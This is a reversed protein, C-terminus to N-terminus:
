EREIAKDIRKGIGKFFGRVGGSEEKEPPKSAAAEPAPAAEKAAALCPNDKEGINGLLAVSGFALGGTAIGAAMRGLSKLTGATDPLVSPSRLPGVVRVPVGLSLGVKKPRPVIVMDIAEKSLDVTGNGKITSRTTDVLLAESRGTGKVFRMRAVACNLYTVEDARYASELLTTLFEGAVLDLYRNGVSSKGVVVEAAGDLSAMLERMSRGEASLAIAADAEGSVKGITVVEGVLAELGLERATLRATVTGSRRSGDVVIRGDVSGGGEVAAKLGEATLRGGKLSVVGAIDKLEVPGGLLRKGSLDVKAEVARLGSFPLPDESFLPQGPPPADDEEGGVLGLDRLDITKWSVTGEFSPPVAAAALTLKGQADSNGARLRFEVPYPRRADFLRSLPGLEAAVDIRRGNLAGRLELYLPSKSGDSRAVVRDLGIQTEERTRGDRYTIRADEILVESFRPVTIGGKAEAETEAPTGAEAPAGGKAFVWNGRDREDTELLIDPAVLVLRRVELGGVLLPLFALEIEARGVKVMEPRSGWTANGLSVEEVVVAPRPVLDLDIEGAIAVDRGTFAEVRRGIADRYPNLDLFQLAVVVAVVPVVVVGVAIKAATALRM